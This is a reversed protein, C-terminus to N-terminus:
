GTFSGNIRSVNSPVGSLSQSQTATAITKGDIQVVISGAQGFPTGLASAASSGAQGFPTGITDVFSGAQGFPTGTYSPVTNTSVTSSPTSSTGVIVAGGGANAVQQVKQQLMDLYAAWSTFPNKADPLSALYGALDKGLGQAKAIEYTLKQAETTNGTLLALQLEARKREDESLQGKLAAILQIQDLDFITGAKKLIAQKKQEATLAKQNKLTQAYLEKRRKQADAEAKAALKDKQKKSIDTKDAPATPINQLFQKGAFGYFFSKGAAKIKELMTPLVGIASGAGREMAAVAKSFTIILNTAESVSGGGSLNTFADVLGGGINETAIRVSNSLLDFKGATTSLNAQLAGTFNKQFAALVKDFSATKLEAASIGLAYKKLGRNNGVYANTIDSVVTALDTNSGKSFDISQRLLDQSMKVSGTVQLLKQMAPFLQDDIVGSSLSLNTIFKDIDANAFSLGLNNVTNSLQLAAKQSDTFEKVAKKGFSIIADTGYAIGFAGALNKVNKALKQTATEIQKFGKLDAKSDLYIGVRETQAM